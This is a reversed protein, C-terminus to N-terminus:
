GLNSKLVGLHRFVQQAFRHPAVFHFDVVHRYVSDLGSIEPIPEAVLEKVLEADPELFVKKKVLSSELEALVLRLQRQEDAKPSLLWKEATEAIDSLLTANGQLVRFQPEFRRDIFILKELCAKVAEFQSHLLHILEVSIVKLANDAIMSMGILLRLVSKDSNVEWVFEEQILEKFIEDVDKELAALADRELKDRPDSPRTLPTYMKTLTERDKMTTMGLSGASIAQLARRQDESLSAVKDKLNKLLSDKKLNVEHQYLRKLVQCILVALQALGERM